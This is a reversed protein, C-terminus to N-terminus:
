LSFPLRAKSRFLASLEDDVMALQEALAAPKIWHLVIPGFSPCGADFDMVVTGMDRVHLGAM